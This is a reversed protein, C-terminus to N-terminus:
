SASARRRRADLADVIEAHLRGHEASHVYTTTMTLDKHGLVTMIQVPSVGDAALRTAYTHRLDHFTFPRSGDNLGAARTIKSFVRSRYNEYGWPFLLDDPGGPAALQVALFLRRTTDDIPVFRRDGDKTRLRIAGTKRIRVQRVDLVWTAGDDFTRLASPTIAAAEEYRLGCSLALLVFLRGRDDDDDLQALLRAEEADTLILHTRTDTKLFRISSTPDVEILRDEAAFRLIMRLVKLRANLTPPNAGAERSRSRWAEVESRRIEALPRSGLPAYTRDGRDSLIAGVHTEYGDWTSREISGRRADLWTRAFRALTPTGPVAPTAPVTETAPAIAETPDLIEARLDALDRGAKLGLAVIVRAEEAWAEGEHAYDFTRLIKARSGPARFGVRVRGSPLTETLIAPLRLTAATV